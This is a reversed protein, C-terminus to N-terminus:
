GLEYVLMSGLATYFLRLCRTGEGSFQQVLREGIQPRILNTIQQQPLQWGAVLRPGVGSSLAARGLALYDTACAGRRVGSVTTRLAPSRGATIVPSFNVTKLGYSAKWFTYNKQALTLHPPYTTSPALRVLMSVRNMEDDTSLLKCTIGRAVEKWQPEQWGNAPSSALPLAASAAVTHQSIHAIRDMLREWLPTPAPLEQMRSSTLADTLGSVTNYERQCEPCVALHAGMLQAETRNLLALAYSAVSSSRECRTRESRSSM